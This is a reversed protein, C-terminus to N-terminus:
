GPRRPDHRPSGPRGLTPVEAFKYTNNPEAFIAERCIRASRTPTSTSPPASNSTACTIIRRAERADSRSRIRGGAREQLFEVGQVLSSACNGVGIIAVRVTKNQSSIAM